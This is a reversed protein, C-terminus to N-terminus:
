GPIESALIIFQVNIDCRVECRVGLLFYILLAESYVPIDM